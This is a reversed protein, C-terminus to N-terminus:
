HPRTLRMYRFTNISLLFTFNPPPLPILFSKCKRKSQPKTILKEQLTLSSLWCFLTFSSLCWALASCSVSACTRLLWWMRAVTVCFAVFCLLCIRHLRSSLPFHFFALSHISSRHSPILAPLFGMLHITIRLATSNPDTATDVRCSPITTSWTLKKKYWSLKM